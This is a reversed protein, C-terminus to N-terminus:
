HGLKDPLDGTIEKLDDPLCMWATLKKDDPIEYNIVWRIEQDLITPDSTKGTKRKAETELCNSIAKKTGDLKHHTDGFLSKPLAALIGERIRECRAKYDSSDIVQYLSQILGRNEEETIEAGHFNACDVLSTSFERLDRGLQNIKNMPINTKERLQTIEVNALNYANARVTDAKLYLIGLQYKKEIDLKSIVTRLEIAVETIQNILNKVLPSIEFDAKAAKPFLHDYLQWSSLSSKGAFPKVDEFFSLFQKRHELYNSFRNQESQQKIQRTQHRIQVTTQISRLHSAVLAACPIALSAIALPLKFMDYFLQVGEATLDAELGSRYSAIWIIVGAILLPLLVAM